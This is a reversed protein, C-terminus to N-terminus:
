PRSLRAWCRLVFASAVYNKSFASLDYVGQPEVKVTHVKPTPPNIRQNLFHLMTRLRWKLIRDENATMDRNSSQTFVVQVGFGFDDRGAEADRIQEPVHILFCAPHNVGVTWPFKRKYFNAEALGELGLSKIEAEVADRITEHLGDQNSDSPM